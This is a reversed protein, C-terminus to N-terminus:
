RRGNRLEARIEMLIKGLWNHGIGNVTGWWRDNWDNGEELKADGTALLAKKLNPNSFKSRLVTCMVDLKIKEWGPRLLVSKGLRKADSPRPADAIKRRIDPKLSKAAQYAHEASRFLRGEFKVSCM